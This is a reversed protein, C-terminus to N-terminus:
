GLYAAPYRRYALALGQLVMWAKVDTGGARCVAVIRGHCDCDRESCVVSRGPIRKALAVTASRGSRWRQGGPVCTQQSRRLRSLLPAFGLKVAEGEGM